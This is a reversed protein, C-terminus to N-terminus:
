GSRPRLRGNAASPRVESDRAYQAGMRCYGDRRRRSEQRRRGGDGGRRRAVRGRHSRARAPPDAGIGSEPFGRRCRELEDTGDYGLRLIYATGRTGDYISDSRGYSAPRVMSDTRCCYPSARIALSAEFSFGSPAEGLAMSAMIAASELKFRYGLPPRSRRSTRARSNSTLTSFTIAPLPDSPMMDFMMRAKRQSSSSTSVVSAAKM